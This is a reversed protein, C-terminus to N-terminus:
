EPRCEDVKQQGQKYRKARQPQSHESYPALLAPCCRLPLIMVPGPRNSFRVQQDPNVNFQEFSHFLTAERQAGGEILVNPLTGTEAADPVLSSEAGLTSDPVVQAVSPSSITVPTWLTCAFIIVPHRVYTWIPCSESM